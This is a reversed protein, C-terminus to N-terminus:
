AKWPTPFTAPLKKLSELPNSANGSANKPKGLPQFRQRLCKKAKWPTPLVALLM